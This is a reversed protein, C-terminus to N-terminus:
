HRATATRGPLKRDPHMLRRYRNIERQARRLEREPVANRMKAAAFDDLAGLFRRYAARIKPAAMVAFPMAQLLQATM